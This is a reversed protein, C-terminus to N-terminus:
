GLDRLRRLGRRLSTSARTDLVGLAARPARGVRAGLSDRDLPLPTFPVQESAVQQLARLTRESADSAVVVAVIRQERLAKELVDRGGVLSGAAAALSLANLVHHLIAERMAVELGATDVQGRLTRGLIGGHSQLKGVCARTPHVWAGRGPLSGKLDVVLEGSPARVLRVLEDRSASQRCAVCTRPNAM